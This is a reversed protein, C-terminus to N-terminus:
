SKENPSASGNPPRRGGVGASKLLFAHSFSLIPDWPPRGRSGGIFYTFQTIISLFAYNSIQIVEEDSLEENDISDQGGIFVMLIPRSDLGHLNLYMTRVSSENIDSQILLFWNEDDWFAEDFELDQLPIHVPKEM